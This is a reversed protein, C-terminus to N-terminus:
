SSWGFSRAVAKRWSAYLRARRELDIAPTWRRAVSWKSALEDTDRWFGTALGAAYAAGLATTEICHPRVVPVHLIDSQFQMLLDNVVM